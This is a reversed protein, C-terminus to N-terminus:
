GVPAAQPQEPQPGAPRLTMGFEATPSPNEGKLMWAAMAFGVGFAGLMLGATGMPVSDTKVEITKRDKSM